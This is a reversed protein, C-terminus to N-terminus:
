SSSSSTSVVWWVGGGVESAPFTRTSKLLVTLALLWYPPPEPNLPHSAPLVLLWCIVSTLQIFHSSSQATLQQLTGLHLNLNLVYCHYIHLGLFLCCLISYYSTVLLVLVVIVM